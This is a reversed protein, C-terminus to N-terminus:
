EHREGTDKNLLNNEKKIKKFYGRFLFNHKLAEMNLNFNNTVKELNDLSKYFLNSSMSDKIIQHILGNGSKIENNIEAVTKGVDSAINEAKESFENLKVFADNINNYASSDYILKGLNGRGKKINSVFEQLDSAIRISHTIAKLLNNSLQRINNQLDSDNLLNWLGKSENIKTLTIKLNESIVNANNNTNYLTRLMEDTDIPKKTPLIDGEQILEAMKRNTVINVVKNGVLGDTGISVTANKRLVYRVKNGITMKVELLSDNIIYIHKVTGVDIGSFRVNNGEKLGQVNEFRAYISIYTGFLSQNKGIMYLLLILFLLSSLVFVGLKVNNISTKSAM